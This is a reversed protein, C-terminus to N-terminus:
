ITIKMTPRSTTPLPLRPCPKSDPDGSRGACGIAWTVPRAGTARDDNEGATGGAHWLCRDRATDLPCDRDSPSLRQAPQVRRVQAALAPRFQMAHLPDLPEFGRLEVVM